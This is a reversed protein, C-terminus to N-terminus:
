QSSIGIARRVREFVEDPDGTGDVVEVQVGQRRYHDLVAETLEHYEHMREAIAATTDDARGQVAARQLIREVLEEEAV